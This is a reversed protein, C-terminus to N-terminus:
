LQHTMGTPSYFMWRFNDIIALSDYIGDSEDHISFTLFFVENPSIPWETRYWGTSGGIHLMYSSDWGFGTGGLNIELMLLAAEELRASTLRALPLTTNVRRPDPYPREYDPTM